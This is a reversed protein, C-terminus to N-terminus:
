KKKFNWIECAYTLIPRILTNYLSVKVSKSLTRCKTNKISQKGKNISQKIENVTNNDM